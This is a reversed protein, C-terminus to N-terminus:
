KQFHYRTSRGLGTVYIKKHKFANKLIARISSASLSMEVSAESVSFSKFPFKERLRKLFPEQSLNKQSLSVAFDKKLLLCYPGTSKLSFHGNEFLIELPINRDTFLKRCRKINHFIRSPSTLPNFFEDPYLQSFIYGISLPRYFDSSLLIILRHLNQGPKLLSLGNESGESINLIRPNSSDDSPWLLTKPFLWNQAKIFREIKLRYSRYPTGFYLRILLARDKRSMGLHLDLDRLTEWAGMSFARTRLNEIENLVEKSNPSQIVKAIARWKEIFLLYRHAEASLKEAEFLLAEAERWERQKIAIQASIELCNGHLLTWKELQCQERLDTLYALAEDHREEHALAAALNVKAITMQYLDVNQCKLFKKLYEIVKDYEWREMYAYSSYLLVDPHDLEIHTILLGLAETVAGAKILLAAYISKEETSPPPHLPRESRLIPRLLQLGWTVLGVRRALNAVTVIQQRPISGSKLTKLLKRAEGVNGARIKLDIQSTLSDLNQQRTPSDLKKKTLM